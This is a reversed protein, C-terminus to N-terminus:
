CAQSPKWAQVRQANNVDARVRARLRHPCEPDLVKAV